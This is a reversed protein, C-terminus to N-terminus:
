HIGLLEKQPQTLKEKFFQGAPHQDFDTLSLLTYDENYNSGFFGMDWNSFVRKDTEGQSLVNLDNHRKDKAIHEYYLAEVVSKEGELVQLFHGSHYILAGCINATQNFQRATNLIDMLDNETFADIVRSTYILQFIPFTDNQYNEEKKINALWKFIHPLNEEPKRLVTIRDKYQVYSIFKDVYESWVLVPFQTITLLTDLLIPGKLENNNKFNDVDFFCDTIVAGYNKHHSLHELAKEPDNFVTASHGAFFLAKKLMHSVDTSKDLVLVNISQNSISYRMM